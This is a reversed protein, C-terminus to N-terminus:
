RVKDSRDDAKAPDRARSTSEVLKDIGIELRRMTLM